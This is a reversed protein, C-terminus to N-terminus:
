SASGKPASPRVQPYYYVVLLGLLGFLGAIPGVYFVGWPREPSNGWLAMSVNPVFVSLGSAAKWSVDTLSNYIGERRQGTELEDLDIMEGQLPTLVAFLIGQGIGCAFFLLAGLTIKGLISHPAIADTASAGLMPLQAPTLLGTHELFRGVGSLDATAIPYMLPLGLTIIAFCIFLLWKLAFRRALVPVLPLALLAGAIFPLMLWTVTSESGHLGLEAWYAVVRQVALYGVCFLLFAAAYYRLLRNKFASHLEGLIRVKPRAVPPVYRERVLWVPLQMLLLSVVAFLAATRQYGLPSPVGTKLRGTDLWEILVGPLVAAIALGSILGGAVWLGLRVREVPTRAVELGLATILNAAMGMFLCVHLLQVTAGYALNISSEYPVPPYWFAINTITMLLSGWFLFPRRRGRVLRFVGRSRTPDKHDSWIAILPSTICSLFIPLAFIFAVQSVAVYVTRGTGLTPSYFYNGWQNVLESSLQGALLALAIALGEYWRFPASPCAAGLWSAAKGDAEGGM